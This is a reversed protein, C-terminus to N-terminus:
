LAERVVIVTLIIGVIALIAIAIWEGTTYLTQTAPAAAAQANAIAVKANAQADTVNISAVTNAVSTAIGTLQGSLDAWGM